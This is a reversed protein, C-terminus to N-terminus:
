VISVIEAVRVGEPTRIEADDGVRLGLLARGLPSSPTVTRIQTKGVRLTLGGASPVLFYHARKGDTDVEVLASIAITADEGFSLLELSVMQVMAEELENARGAQGRAIYSAETARMDKDGEARNEEHTAADASDKARKVAAAHDARLRELIEEKLQQKEM